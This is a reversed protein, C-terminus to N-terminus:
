TRGKRTSPTMADISEDCLLTVIIEHAVARFRGWSVWRQPLTQLESAVAMLDRVPVHRWGTIQESDDTPRPPKNVGSVQYVYSVFAYPTGATGYRIRAICNPPSVPAIGTEEGLERAFGADAAEDYRLKGTPLRYIGQPYFDKTHLWVRGDNTTLLLVVEGPTSVFREREEPGVDVLKAVFVNDSQRTITDSTM